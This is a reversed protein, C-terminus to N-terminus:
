LIPKNILSNYYSNIEPDGSKSLFDLFKPLMQDFIQRSKELVLLRNRMKPIMRVGLGRDRLDELLGREKFDLCQQWRNASIFDLSNADGLIKGEITKPIHPVTHFLIIDHVRKCTGLDFGHLKLNEFALSASLLEPNKVEEVRGTDHWWCATELIETDAEYFSAINAALELVGRTHMINYSPNTITELLAIADNISEAFM